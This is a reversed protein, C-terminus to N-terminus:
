AFTVNSITVPATPIDQMSIALVNDMVVVKGTLKVCQWQLLAHNAGGATLQGGALVGTNAVGNERVGPFARLPKGLNVPHTSKRQQLKPPYVIIQNNKTSLDGALAGSNFTVNAINIPGPKEGPALNDASENVSLTNHVVVVSGSVSVNRWQLGEDGFGGDSFQAHSLIGSNDASNLLVKEQQDEKAKAGRKQHKASLAPAVASTSQAAPLASASAAPLVTVLPAFTPLKFPFRVNTLTIPGTDPGVNKLLIINHVIVLGRNHEIGNWQLFVDTGAASASQQNVTYRDNPPNLVKADPTFTAAGTGSLVGPSLQAYKIVKLHRAVRKSVPPGYNVNAVNIGELMSGEPQVSLSNHVIQVNGGVRVKQWQLGEDGFGGDSMQGGRVLGSNSAANELPFYDEPYPYTVTGAGGFPTQFYPSRPGTAPPLSQSISNGDRAIVAPGDPLVHFPKRQPRPPAPTSNPFTIGQVTILGQGTNTPQVTLSNHVATVSGGVHVKRWQLGVDGFGGDNMQSGILKGSNTAANRYATGSEPITSATAPAAAVADPLAGATGQTAATAALNSQGFILNQITIPGLGNQQPTIFLTNTSTGVHAGVSVDLWQMGIDGFGGDNFQSNKIKGINTRRDEVKNQFPIPGTAGTSVAPTVTSVPPSVSSVASVPTAGPQIVLNEIGINVPGRVGVDLWQLGVRGEVVDRTGDPNFTITGFGGDDFQTNKILNTNITAPLTGATTTAAALAPTADTSSVDPNENDFGTVTLGGGISVRDFQLGITQFGGGNFQSNAILGSNAPGPEPLPQSLGTIPFPNVVDIKVAGRLKVDRLQTGVVTKFGDPQFQSSIIQGVNSPIVPAALLGRNELKDQLQPQLRKRERRSM